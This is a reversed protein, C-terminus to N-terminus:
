FEFVEVCFSQINYFTRRCRNLFLEISSVWISPTADNFDSMLYDLEGNPSSIIFDDDEDESGDSSVFFKSLPITRTASELVRSEERSTQPQSTDESDLGQYAM